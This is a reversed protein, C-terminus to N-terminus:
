GEVITGGEILLFPFSIDDFVVEPEAVWALVCFPYYSIRRLFPSTSPSPLWLLIYLLAVVLVLFGAIFLFTTALWSLKSVVLYIGALFAMSLSVLSIGLLPKTYKLAFLALHLDELQALFLIITTSISGYLSVTIAFIFLHFAWHNLLVAKGEEVDGPVTFGVSFSVTIILTSVLILTNIRDKYQTSVNPAEKESSSQTDKSSDEDSVWVLSRKAGFSKLASWTLRQLIINCILKNQQIKM